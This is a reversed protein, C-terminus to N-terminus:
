LGSSFPLDGPMGGRKAPPERGADASPPARFAPIGRGPDTPAALVGSPVLGSARRDRAPATAPEAPEPPSVRGPGARRAPLAPWSLVKGTATDVLTAHIAPRHPRLYVAFM